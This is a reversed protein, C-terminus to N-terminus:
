LNLRTIQALWSLTRRDSNGTDDQFHQSREDGTITWITRVLEVVGAEYDMFVPENNIRHLALNDGQVYVHIIPRDLNPLQAVAMAARVPDSPKRSSQLTIVVQSEAIVGESFKRQPHLSIGVNALDTFMRNALASEQEGYSLTATYTIIEPKM